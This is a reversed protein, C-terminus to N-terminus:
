RISVTFAILTSDCQDADKRIFLIKLFDIQCDISIRIGSRNQFLETCITIKIPINLILIFYQIDDTTIRNLLVLKVIIKQIHNLCSFLDCARIKAITNCNRM